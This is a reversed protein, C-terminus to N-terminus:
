GNFFFFTGALCGVTLLRLNAVSISSCDDFSSLHVVFMTASVFGLSGTVVEGLMWRFTVFVTLLLLVVEAM